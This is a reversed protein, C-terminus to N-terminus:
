PAGPPIFPLGRPAGHRILGEILRTDLHDAVADGLRDLRATRLAVVDTDPAPVFELEATEVVDALFARRFGDSDFAGHWHTGWVAGTRAGDLFPEAAADIDAVGHHVEYATTVAQGYAQGVPRRLTKTEAFTVEVPLLGLGAVIGRRSEVQDSISRALMQFGGCLGLVPRGARARTVLAAAVGRDHLWGLDDVTARTGPLVVLDADAVELPSVSWRVLVGPEQALADIDTSNSVHPLAVVVVRLLDRGLPAGAPAPDRRIGLSDETDFGLGDLWPVVGLSRRGTLRELMGIGSELVSETGRFKNVVFGSVLAQDAASLLAVTGYFSAFVGGRDIDGVVITPIDRARALGMNAVDGRRLNIEAPSGAGECVVVDFRSALDDFSTLVAGRLAPKLDQYSQATSEAFPQGLLVVHSTGDAGPKLLVPNMQPEPEVGCAAAQMAQARGIEGGEAVVVSNNSMNQAKFPAVKVGQRALWRCIGATLLSKGADSSTGTLLLTGTM